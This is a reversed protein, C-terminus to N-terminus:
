LLCVCLLCSTVCLFQDVKSRIIVHLMSLRMVSVFRYLEPGRLGWKSITLSPNVPTYMIKNNRSLVYILPPELSYGCDM